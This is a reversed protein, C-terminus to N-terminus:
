WDFHWVVKGHAIVADTDVLFGGIAGDCFVRRSDLSHHVNDGFVMVQHNLTYEYTGPFCEYQSDKADFVVSGNVTFIGNDVKVDDNAAAVVRKILPERNPSYQNWSEPKDFVVIDGAKINDDSQLIVVENNHLSPAMSEGRVVYVSLRFWALGWAILAYVAVTCVIALASFIAVRRVRM